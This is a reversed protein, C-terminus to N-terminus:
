RRAFAAAGFILPVVLLLLGAIITPYTAPVWQVPGAEAPNPATIGPINPLDGNGGAVKLQAKLGKETHQAMDCHVFYTKPAAPVIFTARRSTGGDAELHIMGQPYLYRPLGHMMFQHRVHDENVMTVTVRSCAPVDWQYRDYGFVFGPLAYRKGAHLTIAIDGTLSKCDIPLHDANENMVAGDLDSIMVHPGEHAGGGMAAMDHGAPGADFRAEGIFTRKTFDDVFLDVALTWRGAFPVTVNEARLKGGADRHARWQMEEVGREPLALRLDAEGVAAPKGEADLYDLTVTTRDTVSPSFLVTLKEEGASLRMESGMALPSIGHTGHLMALRPPPDLSLIATAAVVVFALGHDVTLLRVLWRKGGPSQRTALSPTLKARNVAAVALLGLVLLVKVSLRVGYDSTWLATLDGDTQVWTMLGGCALLVLVAPGAVIAFRGLVTKAEPATLRRAALLLLPLSGLWFAGTLIHLILASRVLAAPEASATHGTLTFGLAVVIAGAATVLKNGAKSLQWIIAALGAATAALTWARPGSVMLWWTGPMLVAFGTAGLLAATAFLHYPVLLVAACGCARLAIKRAPGMISAPAKILALAIAGGVGFILSAYLLWRLTVVTWRWAETGAEAQLRALAESRIASTEAAGVQFRVSGAVPHGDASTVRYSLLYTGSGLAAEPRLVIRDGPERQPPNLALPAGTQDFLSFRLPLVPENFEFQFRDPARELQADAAPQTGVLMAHARAPASGAACFWCLILMFILAARFPRGGASTGGQRM